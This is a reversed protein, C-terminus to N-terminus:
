AIPRDIDPLVPLTGRSRISPRDAAVRCAWAEVLVAVWRGGERDVQASALEIDATAIPAIVHGVPQQHTRWLVSRPEAEDISSPRGPPGGVPNTPMGVAASSRAADGATGASIPDPDGNRGVAATAGPPGMEDRHRRGGSGDVDGGHGQWVSEILPKLFNLPRSMTRSRNAQSGAACCDSSAPFSVALGFRGLPGILIQGSPSTRRSVVSM